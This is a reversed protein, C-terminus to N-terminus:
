CVQRWRNEGKLMPIGYNPDYHLQGNITQVINNRKDEEFYYNTFDNCPTDYIPMMTEAKKSVGLILLKKKIKNIEARTLKEKRKWMDFDSYRELSRFYGIMEMRNLKLGTKETWERPSIAGEKVMPKGQKNKLIQGEPGIVYRLHAYRERKELVEENHVEMDEMLKTVGPIEEVQFLDFLQKFQGIMTKLLRASFYAEVHDKGDPDGSIGHQITDETAWPFFRHHKTLRGRFDKYFRREDTSCYSFDTGARTRNNLENYYQKNAQWERDNRRFVFRKYLDSMGGNNRFTIEYRLIRDSLDEMWDIENYRNQKKYEKIEEAAERHWREEAGDPVKQPIPFGQADRFTETEWFFARKKRDKNSLTWMDSNMIRNFKLHEKKDNARYEAGKQYIKFYYNHRNVMITTGYEKFTKSTSRLNPLRKNKQYDQYKPVGYKDRFIQNFCIDVRTLELYAMHLRAPELDGVQDNMFNEKFFMKIFGKLIGYAEDINKEWDRNLYTWKPSDASTVSMAINNGWMYKPMSLEFIMYHDHLQYNVFYNSSPQHKVNWHVMQYEKGPNDGHIIVQKVYEPDKWQMRRWELRSTVRTKSEPSITFLQVWFKKWARNHERSAASNHFAGSHLVMRITDFM